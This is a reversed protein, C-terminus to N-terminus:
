KIHLGKAREPTVVKPKGNHMHIFESKAVTRNGHMNVFPKEATSNGRLHYKAPEVYPDGVSNSVFSGFTENAKKCPNVTMSKIKGVDKREHGLYLLFLIRAYPLNPLENIRRRSYAAYPTFLM